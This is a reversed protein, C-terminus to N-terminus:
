FVMIILNYTNQFYVQFMHTFIYLTSVCVYTTVYAYYIIFIDSHTLLFLFFFPKIM